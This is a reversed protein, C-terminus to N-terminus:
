QAALRALILFPLSLSSSHLLPCDRSSNCKVLSQNERIHQMKRNYTTISAPSDLAYLNILIVLMRPLLLVFWQDVRGLGLQRKM